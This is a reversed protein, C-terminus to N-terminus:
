PGSRRIFKEKPRAWRIGDTELSGAMTLRNLSEKVERLSPRKMPRNVIERAAALNEFVDELPYKQGQPQGAFHNRICNDVKAARRAKRDKRIGRLLALLMLLATVLGATPVWEPVTKWDVIFWWLISSHGSQLARNLLTV